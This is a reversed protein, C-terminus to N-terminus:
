KDWGLEALVKEVEESDLLHTRVGNVEQYDEHGKGIVAILDGAESNKIAYRIAEVRDPIDISKGGTPDLGIHIDKMIDEVKEYRSNDATIIALDAVSGVAEGMEYRRHPDRNGGCGFVVVLRKPNYENLVSLMSKASVGNHAYDILVSCHESVHVLEMRGNVRITALAKQIATVPIGILEAASIAALANDVNFIGPMSVRVPFSEKGKYNFELGMFDNTHINKIDLAAFDAAASRGFTHMRCSHGAIMGEYNPDDMNVVGDRCMTFLKAKWGLYEAFDKHEDPGIHDPTINTFVAVDYDIGAVRNMMIGQSSVEMVAVECGADLMQRFRQQLEFSEPTTNRTPYHESGITVGNTGILGVKIGAAELIAKFMHTSTTKGKTGTIGVMKMQRTPHGFYAASILALALRSDAVKIVTCEGPVEIDRSIVVANAGALVVQPIFDHSDVRSGPICIFMTGPAAKRSDYVVETIETDLEGRVLEYDLEELLERLKM